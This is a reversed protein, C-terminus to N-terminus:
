INVVLADSTLNNTNECLDPCMRWIQNIILSCNLDHSVLLLGLNNLIEDDVVYYYKYIIGGSIWQPMISVLLVRVLYPKCLQSELYQFMPAM